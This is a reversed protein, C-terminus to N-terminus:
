GGFSNNQCGQQSRQSNHATCNPDCQRQFQCACRGEMQALLRDIEAELASREMAFSIQTMACSRYLRDLHLDLAFCKRDLVLIADYVADGYFVSRDCLPIQMTDLDGIQGNFYGIREM